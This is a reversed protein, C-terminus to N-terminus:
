QAPVDMGSGNVVDKLSDQRDKSPDTFGGDGAARVFVPVKNENKAPQATLPAVCPLIILAVAILLTRKM